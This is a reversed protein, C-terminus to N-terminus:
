DCVKCASFVLCTQLVQFLVQSSMEMTKQLGVLDKDGQWVETCCKWGRRPCLGEQKQVCRIEPPVCHGGEHQCIHFNSTTDAIWLTKTLGPLWVSGDLGDWVGFNNPLQPPQTELLLPVFIFKPAQWLVETFSPIQSGGAQFLILQPLSITFSPYFTSVSHSCKMYTASFSITLSSTKFFFFHFSSRVQSSFGTLVKLCM